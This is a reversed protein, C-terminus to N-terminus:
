SRYDANIDIYGHTLDCTWVTFRGDGGGVCVDIVVDTGKMHAEVPAEDIDPVAAGAAALLTGGIRVALRDLDIREGARGIAAVIRGWNADAGAIATKVLPSNAITMALRRAAADSEAGSVTITVFRSAGEGDRVIQQALDLALEALAARFPVLAPDDIGDIADNGAAGTAFLLATDNTSTDGDITVANFSQRCAETLLVQLTPPEIAADTVIFALMTAMDPAIMGAGKAIGNITVAKGKLGSRRTCGKAFTDTTMIARAAGPWANGDLARSLGPLAGELRDVPLREGIVGTSAVFVNEAACDLLGAAAHATRDVAAVGDAGTFANANGSNVVLARARGGQLARRCWLVPAAATASQTFTGAVTTGEDFAILLVDDRDAYRIGAAGNALRVGGIAPMDPFNAPALPSLPPM